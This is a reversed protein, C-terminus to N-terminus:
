DKAVPAVSDFVWQGQEFNLNLILARPNPEFSHAGAAKESGALRSFNGQCCKLFFFIRFLRIVVDLVAEVLGQLRQVLVHLWGCLLTLPGSDIKANCSMVRRWKKLREASPSPEMASPESSLSRLISPALSEGSALGIAGFRGCKAGRALFIM